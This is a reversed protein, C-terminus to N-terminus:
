LNHIEKITANKWKRLIFDCTFFVRRFMTRPDFGFIIWDLCVKCYVNLIIAVVKNLMDTELDFITKLIKEIKNAFRFVEMKEQFYPSVRWRPIPYQTKQRDRLKQLEQKVIQPSIRQDIEMHRIDVWSKLLEYDNESKDHANEDHPKLLNLVRPIENVLSVRIELFTFSFSTRSAPVSKAFLSFPFRLRFNTLHRRHLYFSTSYSM